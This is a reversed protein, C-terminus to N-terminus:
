YLTYTVVGFYKTQYSILYLCTSLVLRLGWLHVVKLSGMTLPRCHSWWIAPLRSPGRGGETFTTVDWLPDGIGTDTTMICRQVGEVVSWRMPKMLSGTPLILLTIIIESLCVSAVTNALLPLPFTRSGAMWRFWQQSIINEGYFSCCITCRLM